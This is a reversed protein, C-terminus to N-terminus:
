AYLYSDFEDNLDSLMKHENQPCRAKSAYEAMVKQLLEIEQVTMVVTKVENMLEDM